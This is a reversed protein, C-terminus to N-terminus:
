RLSCDGAPRRGLMRRVNPDTPNGSGDITVSGSDAALAGVIMRITTTKGAGNPGLLGFAEGKQVSFRFTM